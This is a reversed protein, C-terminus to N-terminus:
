TRIRDLSRCHEPAADREDGRVHHEGRPKPEEDRGDEKERGKGPDAAHAAREEDCRDGREAAKRDDHDEHAHSVDRQWQAFARKASQREREQAREAHASGSRMSVSVWSAARKALTKVGSLKMTSTMPNTSPM